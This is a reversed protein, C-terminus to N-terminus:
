KEKGKMFGIIFALIADAITKILYLGFALIGMILFIKELVIM